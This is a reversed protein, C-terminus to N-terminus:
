LPHLLNIKPDLERISSLDFLFLLQRGLIEVGISLVECLSMAAKSSYEKSSVATQACMM